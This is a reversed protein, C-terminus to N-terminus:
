RPHAHELHTVLLPIFVDSLADSAQRYFQEDKMERYSFEGRLSFVDADNRVTSGTQM